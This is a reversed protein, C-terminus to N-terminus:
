DHKKPNSRHLVELTHVNSATSAFSTVPVGNRLTKRQSRVWTFPITQKRAHLIYVAGVAGLWPQLRELRSLGHLVWQRNVPPRLYFSRSDTVQYNLVSLWDTVRGRSFCHANWPPKDRWGRLWHGVGFQSLPNFGIILLQGDDTLVRDAERLAQHPRDCFELTHPLIVLKMVDSAIPLNLADTSAVVGTDIEGMDGSFPSDLVIKRHIGAKHLLSQPGSDEGQGPIGLIHSGGIQLGQYGFIRPLITDLHRSLEGAISQGLGSAYWTGLLPEADIWIPSRKRNIM